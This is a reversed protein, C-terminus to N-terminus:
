QSEEAVARDVDRVLRDRETNIWQGEPYNALFDEAFTVPDEGVVDRVTTGDAAAQEFLEVLDELMTVLVDGRSIAGRYMLYRELAKTTTRHQPPLGAARAQYVRWRKKDEFSGTVKEIIGTVNM